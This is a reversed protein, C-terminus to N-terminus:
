EFEINKQLQENNTWWFIMAQSINQIIIRIEPNDHLNFLLLGHNTSM